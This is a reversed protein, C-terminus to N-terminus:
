QQQNLREEIEAARRQLELEKRRLELKELEIAIKQEEILINNALDQEREKQVTNQRQKKQKAIKEQEEKKRDIEAQKNEEALKEQEAQEVQDLEITYSNSCVQEAAEQKDASCVDPIAKGCWDGSWDANRQIVRPADIATCNVSAEWFADKGYQAFVESSVSDVAAYAATSLFTTILLSLKILINNLHNGNSVNM